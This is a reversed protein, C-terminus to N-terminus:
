AMEMLTAPCRSITSLGGLSWGMGLLGNRGQSSYTISINPKIGATGPSVTIPIAYTAAGSENVQFQGATYGSMQGAIVPLPPRAATTVSWTTSKEGVKLTLNIAGGSLSRAKIAVTDGNKVTTTTSGTDTGNIVLTANGGTVTATVPADLGSIKNTNSTYETNAVAYRIQTLALKFPVNDDVSKGVSWTTSKDCVTVTLTLTGSSLSTTKIALTDGNNVTTTSLGTDIGNKVLTANGGTVTATISADLGSIIITNSTYKTNPEADRIDNFSIDPMGCQNGTEIADVGVLGLGKAGVSSLTM